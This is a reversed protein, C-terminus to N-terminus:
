FVGVGKPLIQLCLKEDRTLLHLFVVNASTDHLM